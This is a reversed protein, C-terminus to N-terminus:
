RAYGVGDQRKREIQAKEREGWEEVYKTEKPASNQKWPLSRFLKKTINRSFIDVVNKVTSLPLSISVFFFFFFFAM